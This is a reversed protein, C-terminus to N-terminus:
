VTSSPHRALWERLPICEPFRIQEHHHLWSFYAGEFGLRELIVRSVIERAWITHDFARPVQDGVENSVGRHVIANRQRIIAKLWGPPLDGVAIGRATLLREVKEDLTRRNLEPVKKAMGPPVDLAELCSRIKSAVPKFAKPEMFTEFGPLKCRDLISELASMAAILRSEDYIVPATLWRIAPDLEEIESQRTFYSECACAFIPAMNLEHFPPMYPPATSGHRLIRVTQHSAEYRFEVVPRLYSDCAFSLVRAVHALLREGDRWWTESGNEQPRFIAISGTPVEAEADPSPGSIVVRGLDTTHEITRFTRLQHVRWVRADPNPHPQTPHPITLEAEFCEGQYSLEIGPESGHHYQNSVFSSSHFRQGEESTGELTLPAVATRTPRDVRLAFAEASFPIRDLKLRLVGAPDVHADFEIRIKRGNGSLSGQFRTVEFIPRPRDANDPSPKPRSPMPKDSDSLPPKM